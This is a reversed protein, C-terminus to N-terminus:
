RQLQQGWDLEQKGPVSPLKRRHRPKSKPKRSQPFNNPLAKAFGGRSPREQAIGVGVALAAALAVVGHKLHSFRM